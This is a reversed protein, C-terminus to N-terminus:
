AADPAGLPPMVTPDRPHVCDANTSRRRMWLSGPESNPQSMLVPCADILKDTHNHWLWNLAGIVEFASNFCLFAELLYQENWMRRDSIVWPEPYDRPTFIDHVHVLVGARLRGLITLYECLVDGQPRIVHSSDIFFIDNADLNDVFSPAIEEVKARHVEVGISELWPVEYPEICIQRCAYTADDTMNAQIALKAVLTSQGSGIEIIRRPKFHRVFNYFYEADGAEFTGNDYGFSCVGSAKRPIAMLEDRYHFKGALALQEEANLNFGEIIREESLGHRLDSAYVLPTYYHHRIPHVGLRDFIARCIRARAPNRAVWSASFGGMIAFPAMLLDLAVVKLQKMYDLGVNGLHAFIPTFPLMGSPYGSTSFRRGRVARQVRRRPGVTYTTRVCAISKSILVTRPAMLSMILRFTCSRCNRTLPVMSPAISM